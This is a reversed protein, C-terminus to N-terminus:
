GFLQIGKIMGIASNIHFILLASWDVDSMSRCSVHIGFSFVFYHVFVIHIREVEQSLVIHIIHENTVLLLQLTFGYHVPFAQIEGPTCM